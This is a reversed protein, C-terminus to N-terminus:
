IELGEPIAGHAKFCHIFNYESGDSANTLGCVTFIIFKSTFDVFFEGKLSNIILNKSLAEWARVIWDLYVEMSSARPNGGTTFTMRDGNSIWTEYYNRIHDKFLANWCVDPAQIFKTCGGPLDLDRLSKEDSRQHSM